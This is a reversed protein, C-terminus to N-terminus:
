DSLLKCAQPTSIDHYLQQTQLECKSLNVTQIVRFNLCCPLQNLNLLVPASNRYSYNPQLSVIVFCLAICRRRRQRKNTSKAFKSTSGFNGRKGAYSNLNQTFALINPFEAETKPRPLGQHTRFGKSESTVSIKPLAGTLSSHAGPGTVVCVAKSVQRNHRGLSLYRATLRARVAVSRPGDM